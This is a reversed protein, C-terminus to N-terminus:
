AFVFQASITTSNPFDTAKASTTWNITFSVNLSGAQVLQYTFGTGCSPARLTYNQGANLTVFTVTGACLSSVVEHLVPSNPPVSSSLYPGLFYIPPSGVNDFTVAFTVYSQGNVAGCNQCIYQMARVSEVQVQGTPSYTLSACTTNSPCTTASTISAIITRITQTSVGKSQSLQSNLTNVQYYEGLTLSAFVLTLIIFIGLLVNKTNMGLSKKHLGFVNLGIGGRSYKICDGGEDCVMTLM